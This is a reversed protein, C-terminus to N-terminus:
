EEISIIKKFRNFLRVSEEPPIKSSNVFIYKSAEQIFEDSLSSTTYDNKIRILLIMSEVFYNSSIFASSFVKDTLMSTNLIKQAIAELPIAIDAYFNWNDRM